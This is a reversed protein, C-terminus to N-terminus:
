GALLQSAAEPALSSEPQGADPPAGPVPGAAGPQMAGPPANENKAQRQDLIWAAQTVYDYLSELVDEPAGAMSANHLSATGRWVIMALNDAPEPTAIGGEFIEEIRMEIVELAATYMSLERELDPHGILRRLSDTSIVGAQAWELLTQERGASSRPLTSAAEVQIKVQGMDVESWKIPKRWRGEIVTPAAAGLDKCVDILLWYVDLVLAEFDAEQPSFRQSQQERAERVAAGTELGSPIKSLLANRANGFEEAASEKLDRRSNYTEPHVAPLVPAQPYDGKIQAINGIKTPKVALSTFDTPRVYTTVMAHQDLIREIQWNRKNLSNQIGAIREAGSIPYFSGQRESWTVMAFPHHSKHYHEDLLTKSEITITRRGPIYRAAKPDVRDKPKKNKKPKKSEANGVASKPRKGIPLRISEIVTVKNRSLYGGATLTGRDNILADIEDAHEPYEAKLQDRDYNRQVHHLQLPPAASRSDEDAVIVDEIRVHDVQPDDWRDAYVKVLGGGKKSSERFALRCKKHVTLLEGLGEAYYEMKKARRQTGWDAGDTPFRPRVESTAVVAYTTDVNAAVVNETVNLLKTTPTSSSDGTPSYQDYLSELLALRSYIGDQEQEIRRVEEFVARHADGAPADHWREYTDTM